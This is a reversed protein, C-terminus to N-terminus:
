CADQFESFRYGSGHVTQIYRDCECHTLQKRLRRIHVDVTREDIYANAGWVHTLLDDRCFVRDKNTMFFNLLRYELPGLKVSRGAITVRQSNQDIVLEGVQLKANLPAIPGRRLVAKIRSILERPSFPKIVYDDAGTDLGIVKNDEEAKATLMIVPIHRTLKNQKLHKIFAIGNMNPLMWDLLILDPTKKSIHEQAKKTDEAESIVFGAKELAYRVMTRIPLEDEVILIHSQNM